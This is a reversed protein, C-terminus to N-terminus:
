GGILKRRFMGAIGVLGTGLLGLTGPEPVTLNTTGAHIHGVGQSFQKNNLVYVTQNTTGTVTRGDWLQGSITGVLSYTRRQGVQATMTWSINGIFSGTFIATNHGHAWNGKGIVSFTSGVSSFSGGGALTGSGGNFAGTTFTVSGLSHGPAASVGNFSQLQSGFSSVGANSVSVTGFQNTLTIGDAWAAIPLALALLVLVVVRRMKIGEWIKRRKRKEGHFKTDL